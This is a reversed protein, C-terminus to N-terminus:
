GVDAFKRCQGERECVRVDGAFTHPTEVALPRVAPVRFLAPCTLLQRSYLQYLGVSRAPSILLAATAEFFNAHLRRRQRQNPCRNHSMAVTYKNLSKIPLKNCSWQCMPRTCTSREDTRTRQVLLRTWHRLPNKEWHSRLM